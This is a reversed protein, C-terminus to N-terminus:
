CPGRASRYHLLEPPGDEMWGTRHRRHMISVVIFRRGNSLVNGAVRRLNEVATCFLMVLTTYVLQISALQQSPTRAVNVISTDLHILLHLIYVMFGGRVINDNVNRTRLNFRFLFSCFLVKSYEGLISSLFSVESHM